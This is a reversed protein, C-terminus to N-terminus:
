GAGLATLVEETVREASELAGEMYGPHSRATESGAFHVRGEPTRFVEPGESFAGPPLTVSYGGGSYIEEHWVLDFYEQPDKAEPGLHLALCEVVAKRRQDPSLAGLEDASGAVSLVSLVGRSGNEPTTDYCVNVPGPISWVAGSLKQKRWFPESYVLGMKVVSGMRASQVLRARAPGLTPAFEILAILPPPIAVIVRRAEVKLGEGMVVVKDKSQEIRTVPSSLRVRDGLEEALREVLGGAGCALQREQAGGKVGQMHALGGCALIAYAALLLSVDETKRCFVGELSSKLVIRASAPWVNQEIFAAVSMQDLAREADSLPATESWPTQGRLRHSLKELRSMGVVLGLLALPKSLPFGLGSAGRSGELEFATKGSVRTPHTAVGLEDVLKLIRNQGPGIWQGGLDLVCAEDVRQSLLRGGVRSRAELLLVEKGQGVLARATAVGAIGAGIVVVDVGERDLGM